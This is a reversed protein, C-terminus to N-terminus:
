LDQLRKAEWCRACWWQTVWRNAAGERVAVQLLVFIVKETHHLQSQCHLGDTETM